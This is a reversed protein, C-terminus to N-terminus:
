RRVDKSFFIGYLAIVGVSLALVEKSGDLLLGALAASMHLFMWKHYLAVKLDSSLFGARLVIIWPAVFIVIISLFNPLFDERYYRDSGTDWYEDVSYRGQSFTVQASVIVWFVAGIIPRSLEKATARVVM